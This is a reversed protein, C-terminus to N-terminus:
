VNRRVSAELSLADRGVGTHTTKSWHHPNLILELLAAYAAISIMLWYVPVGLVSRILGLGGRQAVCVAALGMAAIYSACINAVCLMWGLALAGGAPAGFLQGSWWQYAAVAYFWPHLLASLVLGAFVIQFGTFGWPGLERWLAAPARMHVLYTQMWGKIWRTRQGCWERFTAPAEEWTTSSIMRVRKGLRALRVGLDADETVNYPDWAGATELAGRRFHNSTGGLPLPFGLRDLAPLIADFLAAYELTFQRTFFNTGPNYINLRAQVCAVEPGGTRFMQVAAKLQGPQPADEADFIAIMDGTAYTLAYNLARPKTRPAGQPVILVRMFSADAVSLAARTDPDDEETVFLIELKERPYDLSSLAAVLAPVVGGERYLPVILTYRPLEEPEASPVSVAAAERATLVLGLAVVRVAVIATFPLTVLVLLAGHGASPAVISVALVACLLMVFVTRQRPTVPERASFDPRSAALRNVAVDLRFAPGADLPIALAAAQNHGAGLSRVASGPLREGGTAM